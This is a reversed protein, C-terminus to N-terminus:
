WWCCRGFFPGPTLTETEIIRLRQELAALRDNQREILVCLRGADSDAALGAERCAIAHRQATQEPTEPAVTACGGLLLLAVVLATRDM